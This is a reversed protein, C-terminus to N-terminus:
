YAVPKGGLDPPVKAGRFLARLSPVPWFVVARESLVPISERHYDEPPQPDKSGPDAAVAVHLLKRPDPVNKGFAERLSPALLEPDFFTGSSLSM